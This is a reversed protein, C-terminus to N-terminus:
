KAQKFASATNQETWFCTCLSYTWQRTYLQWEIFVQQTLLHMIKGKSLLLLSLCLFCPSLQFNRATRSFHRVRSGLSSFYLSFSYIKLCFTLFHDFCLFPPLDFPCLFWHLLVWHSFRIAVLVLVSLNCNSCLIVLCLDVSVYIFFQILFNPSFPCIYSVLM